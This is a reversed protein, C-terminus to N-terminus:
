RTPLGHKPLPEASPAIWTELSSLPALLMKSM